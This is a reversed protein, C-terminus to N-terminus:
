CKDNVKFSISNADDVNQNESAFLLKKIPIFQLFAAKPSGRKIFEFSHFKLRM